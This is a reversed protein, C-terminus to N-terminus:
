RASCARSPWASIASSSRGGVGLLVNPPTVDRHVVNLAKGSADTLAHLYTLGKCIESRSQVAQARTFREDRALLTERASRLDLGDVYELIAYTEEGDSRSDLTAVLDPASCLRGLRIEDAFMDAIVRDARLHNRLRKLAVLAPARGRETREALFIDAM